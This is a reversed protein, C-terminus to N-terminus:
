REDDGLLEAGEGLQMGVMSRPSPRAGPVSWRVSRAVGRGAPRPGSGSSMPSCPYRLSAESMGPM